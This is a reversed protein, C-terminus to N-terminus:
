IYHERSLISINKLESYVDLAQVGPERTGNGSSGFGGFPMHPESGFTGMNINVVGARVLRSFYIARDVSETHIASTLGYETNNVISIAEDLSEVQHLTAVPGFVETQSLSATSNLGGILTPNLYYGHALSASRVPDGGCLIQAGDSVAQEIAKLIRERQSYSIVPGLDCENQIGLVLRNCREILASSFEEYIKKYILIRSAAACRQGANSFASRITWDLAEPIKADDCIVISNKGGLELSVRALRSGANQAIWKGVATSGTFSVLSVTKNEVLAAGAESGLGQIVNLVGAPLGAENTLQAFLYALHPADESAKLVVTNGCILAPFVKWAINAIPTNAPVILGAVGLPQRVTHSLKGPISSTLSQGYLRMGEGAFFKAQMIASQLEGNADKHSKGTERCICEILIGSNEHMLHAIKYLLEGRSVATTSAWCPFKEAATQVSLEVDLLSSRAFSSIVQDNHPNKKNLWAGDFPDRGEGNIWNPVNILSNM